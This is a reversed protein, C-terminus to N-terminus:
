RPRKVRGRARTPKGSAIPRPQRLQDKWDPPTTAVRRPLERLKVNTADLLNVLLTASIPLTGHRVRSIQPTSVELPQALERDTRARLVWRAWNLLANPDVPTLIPPLHRPM